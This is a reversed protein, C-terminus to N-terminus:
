NGSNADYGFRKEFYLWRDAVRKLCEFLRKDDDFVTHMLVKIDNKAKKILLVGDLGNVEPMDIDMVTLDPRENKIDRIVNLCNQHVGVVIFGDSNELMMVVLDSLRTNDEYVAVRTM